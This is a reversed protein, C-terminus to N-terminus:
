SRSSQQQSDGITPVPQATLSFTSLLFLGICLLLARTDGIKSKLRVCGISYGVSFLTPLTILWVGVGEVGEVDILRVFSSRFDTQRMDILLGLVWLSTALLWAWKGERALDPVFRRACCGLLYGALLMLPPM